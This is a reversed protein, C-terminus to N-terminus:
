KKDLQTLKLRLPFVKSYNFDFYCCLLEFTGSCKTSGINVRVPGNFGTETMVLNVGSKGGEEGWQTM